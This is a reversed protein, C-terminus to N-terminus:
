LSQGYCNECSSKAIKAVKALNISRASGCVRCCYSFYPETLDRYMM